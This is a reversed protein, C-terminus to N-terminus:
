RISAQPAGRCNRRQDAEHHIQKPRHAQGRGSDRQALCNCSRHNNTM